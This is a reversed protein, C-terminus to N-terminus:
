SGIFLPPVRHGILDGLHRTDATAFGLNIIDGDPDVGYNELMADRIVKPASKFLYNGWKILDGRTSIINGAGIANAM